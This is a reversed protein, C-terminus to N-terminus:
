RDDVTPPLHLVSREGLGIGDVADSGEHGDLVVLKVHWRRCLCHSSVRLGLGAGDEGREFGDDHSDCFCRM